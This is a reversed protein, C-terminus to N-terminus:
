DERFVATANPALSRKWAVTTGPARWSQSPGKFWKAHGDALVYVSGSSHRYRAACYNDAWGILRGSLTPFGSEVASCATTVDDGGSNGVYGSGEMALVVDAPAGISALTQIGSPFWGFELANRHMTPMLNSNNTYSFSKSFFASKDGTFRQFPAPDGSAFPLNQQSTSISPCTWLGADRRGVLNAGTSGAGAKMYPDTLDQWNVAATMGVFVYSGLPFAEDYDQAYMLVGLGIQKMNSVCTAQRAKERAQAFVPFLIAALIAIIAIVVLLEILTFGKLALNNTSKMTPHQVGDDASLV